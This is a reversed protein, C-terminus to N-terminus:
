PRPDLTTLTKAFAEEPTTKLRGALRGDVAGDLGDAREFLKPGYTLVLYVLLGLLWLADGLGPERGLARGPGAWVIGAAIAALGLRQPLTLLGGWGFLAVLAIILVVIGGLIAALIMIM